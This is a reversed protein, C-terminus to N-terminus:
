AGQGRADQQTPDRFLPAGAGGGGGGEDQSLPSQCAAARLWPEQFGAKGSPGLLVVAQQRGQLGPTTPLCYVPEM